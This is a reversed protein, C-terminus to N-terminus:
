CRSFIKKHSCFGLDLNLNQTQRIIIMIIDETPECIFLIKMAFKNSFQQQKLNLILFHNLLKRISTEKNWYM